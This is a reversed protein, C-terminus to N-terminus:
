HPPSMARREFRGVIHFAIIILVGTMVAGKWGSLGISSLYTPGAWAIVVLLVVAWVIATAFNLVSFMLANVNVYACAAAIAIRLGPAFRILLVMATQHKRVRGVLPEARRALAPFRGVWGPLRRRLLYFYFQDGIAAGTAGAAIVGIPNLQGQAVLASAAVYTVEGEVIAAVLIGFYPLPGVLVDTV